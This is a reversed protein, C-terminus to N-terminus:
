RQGGSFPCKDGVGFTRGWKQLCIWRADGWISSSKFGFIETCGLEVHLTTLYHYKRIDEAAGSIHSDKNQITIRVMKAELIYLHIKREKKREIWEM